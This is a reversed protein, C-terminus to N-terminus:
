KRPMGKHLLSTHIRSEQFLDIAHTSEITTQNKYLFTNASHIIFDIKKEQHDMEAKQKKGKNNNSFLEKLLM